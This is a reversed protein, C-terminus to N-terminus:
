RGSSALDKDKATNEFQEYHLIRGIASLRSFKNTIESITGKVESPIVEVLLLLEELTTNLEVVSTSSHQSNQSQHDVLLQALKISADFDFLRLVRVPLLTDASIVPEIM